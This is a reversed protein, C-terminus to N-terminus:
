FGFKACDVIEHKRARAAPCANVVIGIERGRLKVLKTVHQM